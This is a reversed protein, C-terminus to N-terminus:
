LSNSLADPGDPHLRVQKFKSFQAVVIEYQPGMLESWKEIIVSEQLLLLFRFHVHVM